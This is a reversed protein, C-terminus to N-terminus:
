GSGARRFKFYLFIRCRTKGFLEPLPMMRARCRHINAIGVEVLIKRSLIPVRDLARSSGSCLAQAVTRAVIDGGEDSNFVERLRQIAKLPKEILEEINVM